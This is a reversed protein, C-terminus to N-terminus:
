RRLAQGMQSAADVGAALARTWRRDERLVPLAFPRGGGAVQAPPGFEEVASHRSAQEGPLRPVGDLVRQYLAAQREAVVAWSAGEARELGGARLARYENEDRSLQVVHAALAATDGEPALLALGAAVEPISGSAYGVVISGAAQAELIVRGFQEVWTRTATSPLLTVHSARYHEALGEVDTWPLLEVQGTLDLEAVLSRAAVEEPGRGVVVLRAPRVRRVEGLVRIADLVGKEAVLRGVLLLTWVEDDHRQGGAGYFADDLGLPLVDLLGRFGKGRLVSAAQRSCPYMGSLRNLAQREWGHFPPPWRKDINQASYGVVPLAAPAASLWQQTVAAFPEEHVDLVDPRVHDILQRLRSVDRYRHRNVDGGRVVDLEVVAFPEHPLVAEAGGEGWNSPVVLTVEVGADVLANNRRRHAPDRGGHYARLM